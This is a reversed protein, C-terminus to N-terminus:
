AGIGFDGTLLAAASEFGPAGAPGQVHVAVLYDGAATPIHVIRDAFEVADQPNESWAGILKQGSYGCLQAPLVNVSSVSSREMTADVYDDFAAAADLESRSISVTAWMDDPGDVRAASEGAGGSAAWGPPVAVTIRPASPDPTTVVLPAAPRLPHACVVAGAPAPTGPTPQVGPGTVPVATGDSTRTCGGALAAVVLASVLMRHRRRTM